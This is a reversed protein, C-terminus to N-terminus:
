RPPVSDAPIRAARRRPRGRNRSGRLRAERNLGYYFREGAGAMDNVSLVPKGAVDVWWVVLFAAALAAIFGSRLAYTQWRRAATRLELVFVPGPGWRWAM